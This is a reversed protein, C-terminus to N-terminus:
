NNGIQAFGDVHRQAVHRPLERCGKGAGEQRWAGLHACGRPEVRLDRGALPPEVAREVDDRVALATDLM